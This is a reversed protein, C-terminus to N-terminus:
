GTPEAYGYYWDYLDSVDVGLELAMVEFYDPDPRGDEDIPVEGWADIDRDLQSDLYDLEEVSVGFEDALDEREEEAELQQDYMEWLDNADVGMEDALNEVQEPDVGLEDALDDIADEETYPDRRAM